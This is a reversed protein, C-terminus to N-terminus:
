NAGNEMEKRHAIVEEEPVIDAPRARISIKPREIGMGTSPDWLSVGGSYSAANYMVSIRTMAGGVSETPTLEDELIRKGTKVTVRLKSGHKMVMGDKVYVTYSRKSM